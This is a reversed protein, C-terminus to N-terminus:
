RPLGVFWVDYIKRNRTRDQPNKPYNLGKASRVEAIGEYRFENGHKDVKKHDSYALSIASV